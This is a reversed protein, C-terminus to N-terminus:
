MSDDPKRDLLYPDPSFKKNTEDHVITEHLRGQNSLTSAGQADVKLLVTNIKDTIEDIRHKVTEFDISLWIISNPLKEEQQNSMSHM